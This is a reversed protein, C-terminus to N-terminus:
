FLGYSQFKLESLSTTELFLSFIPFTLNKFNGLARPKCQSREPSLSNYTTPSTRDVDMHKFTRKRKANGKAKNEGSAVFKEGAHL